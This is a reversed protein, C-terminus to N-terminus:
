KHGEYSQCFELRLIRFGLYYWFGLSLFGFCNKSCEFKSIQIQKTRWIEHRILAESKSNQM